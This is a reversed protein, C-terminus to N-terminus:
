FDGLFYKKKLWKYPNYITWKLIYIPIAIIWLVAVVILGFIDTWHSGGFLM